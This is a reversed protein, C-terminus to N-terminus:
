TRRSPRILLPLPANQISTTSGKYMSSLQIDMPLLDRGRTVGIMLLNPEGGHKSDDPFYDYKEDYALTIELEVSGRDKDKGKRGELDVKMKESLQLYQLPVRCTGMFDNGSILDYDEIEIDLPSPDLLDLRRGSLMRQWARPATKGSVNNM